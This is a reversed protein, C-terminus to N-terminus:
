YEREGFIATGIRVHTAGHRIAQVFDQSMGASIINFDAQLKEPLAVKARECVDKFAAFFHDLKEDDWGFEAMTMLGRVQVHSLEPVVDHLLELCDSVTLGHKNDVESLNVQLLVPQVIAANGARKEIEKLLRLSDVSHILAVKGVVQRVKNRQLTGILHWAPHCETAEVARQKPLFEQVRNEGFHNLGLEYAACVEAASHFKSVAVIHVDDRKRGAERCAREIEQEVLVLRKRITDKYQNQTQENM